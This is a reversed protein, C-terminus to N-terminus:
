LLLIIYFKSITDKSQDINEDKKWGVLDLPDVYEYKSDDYKPDDLKSEMEAKYVSPHRTRVHRNM